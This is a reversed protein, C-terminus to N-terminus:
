PQRGSAATILQWRAAAAPDGAILAALRGTDIVLVRCRSALRVTVRHPAAPRGAADASGIFTGPGLKQRRGAAQATASGDLLVFCQRGPATEDVLRIGAPLIAEDGAQALLSLCCEPVLGFNM